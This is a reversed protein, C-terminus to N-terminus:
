LNLDVSMILLKSTKRNDQFMEMGFLFILHVEVQHQVKDRLRDVPDGSM